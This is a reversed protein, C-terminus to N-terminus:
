SRTVCFGEQNLDMQVFRALSNPPNQTLTERIRRAAEADKAAILMYGGGGAGLLKLGLIYDDIQNVISQIVETNTGADLAKNLEWSRKVLYATQQYDDRQVADYMDLAHLRIQDLVNLRVSSNLFMGRVIESLINKAVRTIGTYYLLWNTKYDSHTFVSEPMWRISMKDQFGPETELLKVGGFVGGYQDQWGGGTTLLQELILTRHSIEQKDWGLKCFDSLAGLLTAALISSTGLGSGKPVAALLSIEIGGGFAMLQERLSKFSTQCFDPHFGALSLAARPITFASGIDNYGALEDWTTIEESVGNDISRFVIRPESCLRIFTQLPPQGNLNVALNVVTGGNQICYPPTDSWGGAIDLRVPSRGWVIQDSYVNLQPSSKSSLTSVILERLGEFARKENISGDKGKLREVESRFMFDQIQTLPACSKGLESPMQLNNDVFQKSVYSLDSQYFVSRQHNKALIELNQNRYQQRQHELRKLNARASIEEASLREGKLWQERYGAADGKLLWQVWGEEIANSKVLPFLKAKQIDTSENIGGDQFTVSRDKMWCTVPQGMWTTSEAGIVGSFTDNMGYPRICIMDDDVPVFDLCINVSLDIKWKNHPVGTVIHHHNLSWGESVCSNEIWIHHHQENWQIATLANQVFLSPHPKIRHHLIARQDQVRNQIRETSTILELSTGYHYFEGNELPVIAVSLEAIEKDTVSPNQGLGTGFSSYLDYFDPVQNQFRDDQWGTKKMLLNMARDSLIWVGIDMMFLHSNSLQEITQHSPKQLMFDLASSNQRPTFFVGHRSALHPDVWIGLCVVDANPLSSPIQPAHFLVDGSAILTNSASSAVQMIREYLPLQLDLLNQNLRQGRSWRFVPIPTLVKGAPAYSPLRRSQGGAHILIKKNHKLYDSFSQNPYRAQWDKALLWATGGGSGVKAGDPDCTVFWEQTNAQQLEIFDAILNPPLSLLKQM